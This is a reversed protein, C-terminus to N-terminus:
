VAWKPVSMAQRYQQRSKPTERRQAKLRGDVRVRDHVAPNGTVGLRVEQVEEDVVDRQQSRRMLLAVEDGVQVPSPHLTAEAM